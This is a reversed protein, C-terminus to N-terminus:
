FHVCDPDKKGFDLRKKENEFFSLPPKWGGESGKGEETTTGRGLVNEFRLKQTFPYNVFVIEYLPIFM